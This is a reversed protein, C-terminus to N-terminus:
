KPVQVEPNSVNDLIAALPYSYSRCWKAQTHRTKFLAGLSFVARRPTIPLVNCLSPHQLSLAQYHQLAWGSQHSTGSPSQDAAAQGGLGHHSIAVTRKTLGALFSVPSPVSHRESPVAVPWSEELLAKQNCRSRHLIQSCMLASPTKVVDTKVDHERATRMVGPGVKGWVNPEYGLDPQSPVKRCPAQEICPM